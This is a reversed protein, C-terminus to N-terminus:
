TYPDSHEHDLTTSYRQLPMTLFYLSFLLYASKLTYSTSLSAINHSRSNRHQLKKIFKTVISPLFFMGMILWPTSAYPPTSPMLCPSMFTLLYQHKWSFVKHALHCPSMFPNCAKPARKYVNEKTYLTLSM